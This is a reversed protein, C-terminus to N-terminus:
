EIPGRNVVTIILIRSPEEIFCVRIRKGGSEGPVNSKGDMGQYSVMPNALVDLVEAESVVGRESDGM